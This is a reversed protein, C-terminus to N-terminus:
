EKKRNLTLNLPPIQLTTRFKLPRNLEKCLSNAERALSNARLLKERLNQLGKRFKLDNLISYSKQKISDNTQNQFTKSSSAKSATGLSSTSSSTSLMSHELNTIRDSKFNAYDHEFRQIAMEITLGNEDISNSNSFTTSSSVSKEESENDLEELNNNSNSNEENVSTIVTSNLHRNQLLIEEQAKNFDDFPKKTIENTSDDVPCNLRFFHNM